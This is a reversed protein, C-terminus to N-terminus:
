CYNPSVYGGLTNNNSYPCPSYTSNFSRKITFASNDVYIDSPSSHDHEWNVMM